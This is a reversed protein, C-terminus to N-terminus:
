AERPRPVVDLRREIWAAERDFGHRIYFRSLRRYREVPDFEAAWHLKRLDVPCLHIPRRDAEELNNSGNMACEFHVCHDVGFLHGIEHVLVKMSRKLTSLRDDDTYRTFSYIGTREKPWAQGFVFNWSPKPYLDSGTVGMLCFADDPLRRRLYDVIDTTLVQRRDSRPHVRSRFRSMSIDLPPLSEASMGCYASAFEELLRLSPSSEDDFQRIPQIYITDRTEEPWYADGCRFQEFTQGPEHRRALWKDSVPNSKSTFHETAEFLARHRDSLDGASGIASRLHSVGDFARM